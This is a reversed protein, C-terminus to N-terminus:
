AERQATPGISKSEYSEGTPRGQQLISAAEDAVRLMEAQLQSVLASLPAASGSTHAEIRACLHAIGHAGVVSASAKLKHAEARASLTDGDFSTVILQVLERAQTVFSRLLDQQLAIDEGVYAALSHRDLSYKTVPKTGLWKALALDLAEPGMPKTLFDDMGAAICREAEGAIASATLALIPMRATGGEAARIARSLEFGDLRPMHCDTLLLAFRRERWAELASEGDPMVVCAYGLRALQREIVDRNISNDEAVLILRGQAEAEALTPVLARPQISDGFRNVTTPSARGAAVAIAALVGSRSLPQTSARVGQAVKDKHNPEALLVFRRRSLLATVDPSLEALRSSRLVYVLPRGSFTSDDSLDLQALTAFTCGAAILYRKVIEELTGEGWVLVIVDDLDQWAPPRNAAQAAYWTVTFESGAGESSAVNVTGGALRVISRVISLGLGTGGFRRTTSADAQSFPQFLDDVTGQSMGIGNDTVSFTLKVRSPEDSASIGVALTVKGPRGLTPPTFKIANSLLNFLVQRLRVPDTGLRRPVDAQLDLLLMLKSRSALPGLTSMVSELLDDFDVDVEEVTLRNAEAKSFTLVDDIISLLAHGSEKITRLLQNRETRSPSEAILDILGLIGNMPTRIEHSMAALFASKAQTAAEAANKAKVLDAEVQIRDTIDECVGLLYDPSGDSAFMPVKITRLTRPGNSRTRVIEAAILQPVGSAFTQHDIAEHMAAQAEPLFERDTKGLVQASPLGFLAEAQRNWLTFQGFTAPAGSRAFLAVPINAVVERLFARSKELDAEAARRATVDTQVGIFKELEGHLGFVPQLTVRTWYKQRDKTYYLVEVSARKPQELASRLVAVTAPDTDPGQLLERPKRGLAEEPPYGTLHTFARNVWEIHGERDSIILADNTQQALLTLSRAEKESALLGQTTSSHAERESALLLRERANSKAARNLTRRIRLLLLSLLTVCGAALLVSSTPLLATATGGLLPPLLPGWLVVNLGVALSAVWTGENRAERASGTVDPPAPGGAQSM